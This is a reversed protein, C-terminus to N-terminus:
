VNIRYDVLTMSDGWLYNFEAIFFRIEVLDKVVVVNEYNRSIANETLNFSGTLLLKNDVIVFKHHMFTNEKMEKIRIKVGKKSLKHILDESINMQSKDTIVRVNVRKKRCKIIADYIEVSTFSFACIDLSVKASQLLKLYQDIGSWPYPLIDRKHDCITLDGCTKCARKPFFFIPGPDPPPTSSDVTQKSKAIVPSNFAEPKGLLPPAASPPAHKNVTM